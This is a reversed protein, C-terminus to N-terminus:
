SAEELLRIARATSVVGSKESDNLIAMALMQCELLPLETRQQIFTALKSITEALDVRDEHYSM